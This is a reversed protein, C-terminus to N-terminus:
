EEMAAEIVDLVRRVRVKGKEDLTGQGLGPVGLEEMRARHRCSLSDFSPLLTKLYFEQLDVRLSEAM